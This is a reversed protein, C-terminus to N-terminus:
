GRQAQEGTARSLNLPPPSMLEATAGKECGIEKEHQSRLDVSPLTTMPCPNISVVFPPPGGRGLYGLDVGSIVRRLSRHTTVSEIISPPFPHNFSHVPAWRATVHQSLFRVLRSVLPGWMDASSRVRAHLPNIPRAPSNNKPHAPTL